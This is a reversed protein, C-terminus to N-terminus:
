SRRPGKLADLVAFPSPTGGGTEEDRHESFVAGSKRPYPEISLAAFEAVVAGLDVADGHYIEPPDAGEPDVLVEEDGAMGALHSGEPVYAAEVPANVVSEIPELTVVCSQTLRAHLTGKIRVGDRKWRWVKLTASLAEVSAVGWLRALAQREEASASLTLTRGAPAIEAIGVPRSFPPLPTRIPSVEWQFVCTMTVAAAATRSM